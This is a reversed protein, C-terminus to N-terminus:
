AESIAIPGRTLRRARADNASCEGPLPYSANLLGLHSHYTIVSTARLWFKSSLILVQAIAEAIHLVLV